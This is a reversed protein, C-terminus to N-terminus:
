LGGNNKLRNIAKRQQLSTRVTEVVYYVAYLIVAAMLLKLLLSGYTTIAQNAVGTAAVQAAELNNLLYYATGLAVFILVVIVIPHM